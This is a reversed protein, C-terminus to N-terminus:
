GRSARVKAIVSWLGAGVAAATGTLQTVDDATLTGKAVAYGGASAIVARVVGGLVAAFFPNM